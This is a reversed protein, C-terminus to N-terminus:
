SITSRRTARTRASSRPKSSSCRRPPYHFFFHHYAENLERLYDPDPDFRPREPDAAGARLADCCCTPRRRCTSSSIRRRRRGARASRVAAPLHVARQRRPEPVRLDQGQRLPLRCITDPQLSGGPSRRRSGTGTSCISSSRRCRPARATPTSIPSFRITLKRSVVDSSVRASGSPWRRRAPASRVKSRSTASTWPPVIIDDRKARVSDSAAQARLESADAAGRAAPAAAAAAASM